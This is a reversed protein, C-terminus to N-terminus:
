EGRDCDVLILWDASTDRWLVGLLRLHHSVLRDPILKDVPTRLAGAIVEADGGPKDLFADFIKRMMANVPRYSRDLLFIGDAGGGSRARQEDFGYAANKLTACIEKSNWVGAKRARRRLRDTLGVHLVRGEREFVAFLVWPAGPLDPEIERLRKKITALDM